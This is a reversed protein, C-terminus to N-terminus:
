QNCVGLLISVFGFLNEEVLILDVLLIGKFLPDAHDKADSNANEKSSYSLYKELVQPV